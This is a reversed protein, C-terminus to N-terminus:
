LSLPSFPPTPYFLLFSLIKLLGKSSPSPSATPHTHISSEQYIWKDGAQTPFPSSLSPSLSLPNYM